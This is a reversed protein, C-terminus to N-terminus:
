SEQKLIYESLCEMWELNVNKVPALSKINAIKYLM